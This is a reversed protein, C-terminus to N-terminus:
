DGGGTIARGILDLISISSQTITIVGGPAIMDESGGPAIAIHAGGLLGDTAVQASSDDPLAVAGDIVMRVQAQYTAPDLTVARISGVKVGSVRVDGGVSLGEAKRFSASLEYGRGGGLETHQAAFLMFGGAVALVAAGIITEAAGNAM